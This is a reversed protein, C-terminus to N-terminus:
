RIPFEIQPNTLSLVYLPQGADDPNSDGYVVGGLETAHFRVIANGRSILHITVSYLGNSDSITLGVDDREDDVFPFQEELGLTADEYTRDSFYQKLPVTAVSAFRPAVFFRLHIAGLNGEVWHGPLYLLKGLAYTCQGDLQRNSVLNAQVSILNDETKNQAAYEFAGHVSM